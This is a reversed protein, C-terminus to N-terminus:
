SPGKLKVGANILAEVLERVDAVLKHETHVDIAGQDPGSLEIAKRQVYMYKSLEKNAQVRINKDTDKALEVWAEMPDHGAAACAEQATKFLFQKSNPTGAKRGAGAARPKGAEFPM